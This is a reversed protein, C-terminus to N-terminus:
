REDDCSELRNDALRVVLPRSARAGGSIVETRPERKSTRIGSGEAWRTAPSRESRTSGPTTSRRTIVAASHAPLLGGGSRPVPERSPREHLRRSDFGRFIEISHGPKAWSTSSLWTARRASALHRAPRRVYESSYGLYQAPSLILSSTRSRQEALQGTCAPCLAAVRTALVLQLPVRFTVGCSVV